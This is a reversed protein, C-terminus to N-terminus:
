YIETGGVKITYEKQVSGDNGRIMINIPIIGSQLKPTVKISYDLSMGPKLLSLKVDGEVDFLEQLDSFDISINRINNQSDNSLRVLIEATSESEIHSPILISVSNDLLERRKQNIQAISLEREQREVEMQQENLHWKNQYKKCQTAYIAGKELPYSYSDGRYYWNVAKSNISCHISNKPTFGTKRWIKSYICNNCHIASTTTM